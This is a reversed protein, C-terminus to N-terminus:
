ARLTDTRYHRQPEDADHHAWWERWANADNGLPVGTITRLAGYVLERTSTDLSDDDAYNLLQPVAAYREERTLMGSKALSCAARERVRPARDHALIDLLPDLTSESGLMALGEVAWYRTNENVHHSYTLLTALVKQPEVGRNGLAGLRWLALSREGPHNKIQQILRAATQPSKSLNNAALDVEVAATRVALDESNLAALVLDFLRDTSQLRGRWADVNQRILNLSTGDRHIARELLREAQQQPALHSIGEIGSKEEPAPTRVLSAAPLGAHGGNVAEWKSWAGTSRATQFGAFLSLAGAIILAAAFPISHRSRRPKVDATTQIHQPLIGKQKNM